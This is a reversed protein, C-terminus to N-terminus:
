RNAPAVAFGEGRSFFMGAVVPEAPRAPNNSLCSRIESERDKHRTYRLLPPSESSGLTVPSPSRIHARESTVGDRYRQFTAGEGEGGARVETAGKGRRLSCPPPQSRMRRGATETACSKRFTLLAVRVGRARIGKREKCSVPVFVCVCVVCVRARGNRSGSDGIPLPLHSARAHM